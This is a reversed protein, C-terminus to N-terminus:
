FVRGLAGLAFVLAALSLNVGVLLRIRNLAEAAKPWAELQTAGRLRPYWAWRIRAFVAMMLLGLGAMGQLPWSAQAAASPWMALGSLLLVVVAVLVLTLFRGLARTLLALRLPPAELTQLVAPRVAFLFTAMGGLWFAAALLHLYLLAVHTLTM